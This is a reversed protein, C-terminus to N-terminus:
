LQAGAAIRQNTEAIRATMRACEEAHAQAIQLLAIGPAYLGNDFKVAFDEAMLTALARTVNTPSEGTMAALEQNSIGNLRRGRLAKMVRLVRQASNITEKSM